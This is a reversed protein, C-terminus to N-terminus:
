LEREQYKKIRKSGPYIHPLVALIFLLVLTSLIATFGMGIGAAMGVGATAWVSAATTLGKTRRTASGIIIAGAGLFGIGQIVGQMVRSMDNMSVAAELPGVMFIATGVAVLMHTRMGADKEMREREYGLAGGLVAATLLRVTIRMIESFNPLDSFEEALMLFLDELM